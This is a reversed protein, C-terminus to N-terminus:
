YIEINSYVPETGEIVEVMIPRNECNMFLDVFELNNEFNSLSYFKIVNAKKTYLYYYGGSSVHIESLMQLNGQKDLDAMVSRVTALMATSSYDILEGILPEGIDVGSILVAAPNEPSSTLSIVIGDEDVSYYGSGTAFIVAPTREAVVIRVRGPLIREVVVSKIMILERISKEVTSTHFSFLNQGPEIGSKEKVESVTVKYAGEVTVSTINFLPSRTMFVYAGILVIAILVFVWPLARGRRRRRQRRTRNSM